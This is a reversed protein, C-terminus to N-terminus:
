EPLDYARTTLTAPDVESQLGEGGATRFVFDTHPQQACRREIELTLGEIMLERMTVEHSKALERVRRVLGDPLDVTTKMNSVM